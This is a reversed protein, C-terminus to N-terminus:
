DELTKDYFDVIRNYVMKIEHKKTSTLDKLLDQSSNYVEPLNTIIKGILSSTKVFYFIIDGNENILEGELSETWSFKYNSNIDVIKSMRTILNKSPMRGEDYGVVFEGVLEILEDGNKILQREIQNATPLFYGIEKKTSSFLSDSKIQWAM